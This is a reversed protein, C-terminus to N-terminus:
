RVIVNISLLRVPDKEWPRWYVFELPSSGPAEAFFRFEFTGGCGICEKPYYHDAIPKLVPTSLSDVREWICGSTPNGKLRIVFVSNADVTLTQGEQPEEVIVANLPLPWGNVIKSDTATRDYRDIIEVKVEYPGLDKYTHELFLYNWCPGGAINGDGFDWRLACPSAACSFFMANFFATMTEGQVSVTAIFGIAPSRPLVKINQSSSATRGYKDTVTLMAEYEGPDTYTHVATVGTATTGDGFSWVYSTIADAPSSASADFTVKLPAEGETPTATFRPKLPPMCGVLIIVTIVNALVVAAKKASM